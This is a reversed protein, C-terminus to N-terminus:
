KNWLRRILSFKGTIIMQSFVITKVLFTKFSSYNKRFFLFLGYFNLFYFEDKGEKKIKPQLSRGGLHIVKAEPILVLRFGLKRLQYSLDVDEFFHPYDEDLGGVKELIEKRLMVAAGSVLEILSPKTFDASSYLLHPLFKSVIKRTIPNYYLFVFLLSPSKLYCPDKQYSGDENLLLPSVAAVESHQDLYNVLKAMSGKEVITDSNLLMIYKGRAQKIGINNGKAFGLNSQNEILRIKYKTNRIQYKRVMESSGDTSGNDVVVVECGGIGECGEELSELCQKLLAETNWSLIVISLMLKKAEM